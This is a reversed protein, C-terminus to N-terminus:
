AGKQWAGLMCFIAESDVFAKLALARKGTVLCAFLQYPKPNFFASFMLAKRWEVPMCFCSQFLSIVRSGKQWEGPVALHVTSIPTDMFAGQECVHVEISEPWQLLQVSV